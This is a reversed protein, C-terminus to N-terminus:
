KVQSQTVVSCKTIGLGAFDGQNSYNGDTQIRLRGAADFGLGDPSNFMNDASINESGAYLTGKHVTPNGAILYLDSDFVDSTHDGQATM